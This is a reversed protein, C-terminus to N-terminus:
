PFVVSLRKKTMLQEYKTAHHCQDGVSAIQREAGPVAYVLLRIAVMCSGYCGRKVPCAEYLSPRPLLAIRPSTNCRPTVREVRM